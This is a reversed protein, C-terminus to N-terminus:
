RHTASKHGTQGTQTERCEAHFLCNKGHAKAAYLLRDAAKVLEAPDVAPDARMSALGVSVSTRPESDPFARALSVDRITTPLSELMRLASNLGTGSLLLVFEDGGFRACLDGPRHAFNNLTDAITQLCTDGAAHGFRDNIGKFDDVDLIALSLSKNLRACRRWEEDLRENFHRRNAVGTLPDSRAMELIQEEALKRQTIDHHSIVFLQNKGASIRMSFWRQKLPSHCPYELLFENAEGNIVRKIGQMAAIAHEDGALVARECARFYNPNEIDAFDKNETAACNDGYFSQWARNTYLIEGSADIVCIQESLTDTILQCFDRSRPM